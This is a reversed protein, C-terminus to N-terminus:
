SECGQRLCWCAAELMELPPRGKFPEVSWGDERVVLVEIACRHKGSNSVDKVVLGYRGPLLRYTDEWHNGTRSSERRPSLFKGQRFSWVAHSTYAGQGTSRGRLEVRTM